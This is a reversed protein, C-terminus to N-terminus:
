PVFVTSRGAAIEKAKEIAQEYTTAATDYGLEQMLDRVRHAATKRLVDRQHRREAAALHRELEQVDALSQEARADTWDCFEDTTKTRALDQPYTHEPIDFDDFHMQGVKVFDQENVMAGRAQQQLRDSLTNLLAYHEVEAPALNPYLLQAAEKLLADPNRNASTASTKVAVRILEEVKEKVQEQNQMNM